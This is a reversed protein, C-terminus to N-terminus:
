PGPILWCVGHCSGALSSYRGLLRRKDAFITGLKEFLRHALPSVSIFCISFPFLEGFRRPIKSPNYPRLDWLVSKKMVVVPLVRFAVGHRTNQGLDSGFVKRICIWRIPDLGGQEGSKEHSEM